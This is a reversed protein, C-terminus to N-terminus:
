NPGNIIIVVTEPDTPEIPVQLNPPLDTRIQYAKGITSWAYRGGRYYLARELARALADAAKVTMAGARKSREVFLGDGSCSRSEETTQWQARHLEASLALMVGEKEDLGRPDTCLILKVKQGAFATVTKDRGFGSELILKSRTQSQRLRDLLASQADVSEKKLREYNGMASLANQKAEAAARQAM